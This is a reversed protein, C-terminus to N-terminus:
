CVTDFNKRVNGVEIILHGPRKTEISKWAEFESVEGLKLRLKACPPTSEIMYDNLALM